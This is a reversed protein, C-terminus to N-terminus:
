LIIQEADDGAQVGAFYDFTIATTSSDLLRADSLQNSNADFPENDTELQGVAAIDDNYISLFFSAYGASPLGPHMSIRKAFEKRKQNGVSYKAFTDVDYQNWYNATKQVAAALRNSFRSNEQLAARQTLTLETM